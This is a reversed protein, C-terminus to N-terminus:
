ESRLALLAADAAQQEAGRRSSGVGRTRVTRPPSRLVLECSVHFVQAHPEGVTSELAYVPLAEGRAQLLEQLQTKADKLEGEPQLAALRSQFLRLVLGRAVELGADLYLAGILAETADALISERRFGGTKLEGSGLRLVEGIGIEAGVQALPTSSVLSARLRSLTGENADGFRLYLAEAIVLSLVADGLFELREYNDPDASRHTVATEFLERRRPAFGGLGLLWPELPRPAVSNM